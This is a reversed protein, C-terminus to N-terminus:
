HRRPRRNAQKRGGPTPAALLKFAALALFYLTAFALLRYPEDVWIGKGPLGYKAIAESGWGLAPVPLLVTAFVLGLWLLTSLLWLQGLDVHEDEGGLNWQPLVYRSLLLWAFFVTPWWTQLALSGGVAFGLYFLIALPLAARPLREALMITLIPLMVMGHISLFEIIMILATVRALDEPMAGPAIWVAICMGATILDALASPLGALIRRLLGIKPPGVQGQTSAPENRM